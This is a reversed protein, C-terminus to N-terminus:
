LLSLIPFIKACCRREAMLPSLILDWRWLRPFQGKLPRAIWSRERGPPSPASCHICENPCARMIAISFQDPVLRRTLAGVQASLMRDFALSPAPPIWTSFIFKDPGSSIPKENAFVKNIQDMVPKALPALPGKATLHIGCGEASAEIKLLPKKAIQM